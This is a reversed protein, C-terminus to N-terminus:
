WDYFCVDGNSFQIHVFYEKRVKLWSWLSWIFTIIIIWSYLNVYNTNAKFIIFDWHCNPLTDNANWFYIDIKKKFNLKM